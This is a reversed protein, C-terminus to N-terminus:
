IVAKRPNILNKRICIGAYDQKYRPERQKLGKPPPELGFNVGQRASDRGECILYDNAVIRTSPTATRRVPARGLSPRSRNFRAACPVQDSEVRALRRTLHESTARNRRGMLDCLVNGIGMSAPTRHALSEACGLVGPIDRCPSVDPTFFKSSVSASVSIRRLVEATSLM